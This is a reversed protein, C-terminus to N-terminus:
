QTKASLGCAVPKGNDYNTWEQFGINLSIDFYVEIYFSLLYYRGFVRANDVSFCFLYVKVGFSTRLHIIGVQCSICAANAGNSRRLLQVSERCVGNVRSLYIFDYIEDEMHMCLISSMAYASEGLIKTVPYKTKLPLFFAM